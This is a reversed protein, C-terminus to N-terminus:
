DGRTREAIEGAVGAYGALDVYNDLRHPGVTTRSIKSLAMMMSAQSATIPQGIYASWMDALKQYQVVVDGYAADRDGAVLEAAIECIENKRM